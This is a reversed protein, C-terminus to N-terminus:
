ISQNRLFSPIDLNEKDKSNKEDIKEDLGPMESQIQVTKKEDKNIELAHKDKEPKIEVKKEKLDHKVEKNNTIEQKEEEKEENKDYNTITEKNIVVEEDRGTEKMIEENSPVSEKELFDTSHDDNTSHGDDLSNNVEEEKKNGFNFIKISSVKKIFEKLIGDPKKQLHKRIYYM